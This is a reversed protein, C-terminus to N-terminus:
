KASRVEIRASYGLKKLLNECDEWTLGFARVDSVGLRAVVDRPVQLNEEEFEGEAMVNEAWEVLEASSLEHLLYATLKNAVLDTTIKM